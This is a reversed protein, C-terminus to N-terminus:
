WIMLSAPLVTSTLGEVGSWSDVCLTWSISATKICLLLWVPSFSVSLILCMSLAGAVHRLRIGGHTILYAPILSLVAGFHLWLIGGDISSWEAHKVLSFNLTNSFRLLVNKHWFFQTTCEEVKCLLGEISIRFSTLSQREQCRITMLIWTFHIIRLHLFYNQIILTVQYILLIVYSHSTLLM